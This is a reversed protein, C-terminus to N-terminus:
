LLSRIIYIRLYYSFKLLPLDLLLLKLENTNIYEVDRNLLLNQM